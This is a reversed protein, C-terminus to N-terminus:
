VHARGIKREAVAEAYEQQVDDLGADTGDKM